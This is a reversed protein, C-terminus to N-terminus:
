EDDYLTEWETDKDCFPCLEENIDRKLEVPVEVITGCGCRYRNYSTHDKAFEKISNDRIAFWGILEFVEYCKDNEKCIQYAFEKGNVKIKKM